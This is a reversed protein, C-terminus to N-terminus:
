AYQQIGAVVWGLSGDAPRALHWVEDFAEAPSGASERLTGHFRVSAIHRAAESSVDLLEADLQLIDTQQAARGREQYELLIEAYVEPTTFTRIDDMNGADNAAQLRVFNLKAQRLFGDVDFGAPINGTTAAGSPAAPLPDSAPTVGAVPGASAYQLPQAENRRLVSRVLYIVAFAALIALMMAGLGGGLGFHSLLAGIGAGLALGGLMGMLPSRAPAPQQTATAPAASAAAPKPAIAQRNMVSGGRSMGFSGGGGLRRAETDQSALGLVLVASFLTWLLRQM